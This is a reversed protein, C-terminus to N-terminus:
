VCLEWCASPEASAVATPAACSCRGRSCVVDAGLVDSPSLVQALRAELGRGRASVASLGALPRDRGCNQILVNLGAAPSCGPQPGGPERGAVPEGHIHLEPTFGRGRDPGLTGGEASSTGPLPLPVQLLMSALDDEPGLVRVQTVARTRGPGSPQEPSSKPKPAEASDASFHPFAEVSSVEQGAEPPPPPVGLCGLRGQAQQPGRSVPGKCLFGSAPRLHSHAGPRPLGWAPMHPATLFPSPSTGRRPPLSATLLSHFTQGGSAGREHQVEVLHAMYDALWCGATLCGLGSAAVAERGELFRHQFCWGAM